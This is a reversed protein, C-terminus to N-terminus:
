RGWRCRVGRRSRNGDGGIGGVVDRDDAHKEQEIPQGEAGFVRRGGVTLQSVVVAVLAM